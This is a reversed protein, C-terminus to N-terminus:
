QKNFSWYEVHCFQLPYRSKGISVCKVGEKVILSENLVYSVHESLSFVVPERLLLNNRFRYILICLNNDHNLLITSM